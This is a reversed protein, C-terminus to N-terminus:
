YYYYYRDWIYTHTSITRITTNYANNRRITVVGRDLRPVRSKRDERFIRRVYKKWLTGILAIFFMWNGREREREKKYLPM